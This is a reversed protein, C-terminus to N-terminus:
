AEEPDPGAELLLAEARRMRDRLRAADEFRLAKAAARMERELEARRQLLAQRDAPLGDRAEALAALDVYDREAYVQGVTDRIGRVVSQPTIGHAENFAAQIERRRAMEALAREMSGTPRDAYLLVQGRVNRAARGSVQILSTESRLVERLLNIGVLVDFVGLRLDRLIEARELTTVDAHMWRARIGIENLHETLDEAMRKTLTAVLAREGREVRARLEGVLDDVQGRAPRVIVEPDVLGTPRIVQEVIAGRAHEREYPGPTASVYITPGVRAEFEEFTLPRNDLASPLRFGYDVLNQKRRRDGHYMGGVQPVGVHSEDLFLLFDEPLYSLLTAPPEGPLRGYL